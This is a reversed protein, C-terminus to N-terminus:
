FQKCHNSAHNCAAQQTMSNIQGAAISNAAM